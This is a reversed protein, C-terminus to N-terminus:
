FAELALGYLLAVAGLAVFPAMKRTAVPVTAGGPLGVLDYTVLVPGGKVDAAQAGGEGLDEVSDPQTILVLAQGKQAATYPVALKGDADTVGSKADGNLFTIDVAVGPLGKKDKLVSVTLVDTTPPATPVQGMFPRSVQLRPSWRAAPFMPNM